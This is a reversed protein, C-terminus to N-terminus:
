PPYTRILSNHAHIGLQRRIPRQISRQTELPQQQPSANTKSSRIRRSNPKERRSTQTTSIGRIM